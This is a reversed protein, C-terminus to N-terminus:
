LHTYSVPQRTDRRRAGHVGPGGQPRVADRVAAPRPHRRPPRALPRRRRPLLRRERHHRAASRTRGPPPRLQGDVAAVPHRGRRGDRQVLRPVGRDERRGGPTGHRHDLRGGEGLAPQRGHHRRRAQAGARSRSPRGGQTRLVQGAPPAPHRAPERTTLGETSPLGRSRLRGGGPPRNGLRHRPEDRNPVFTPGWRSGLPVRAPSSRPALPVRAPTSHSALCGRTRGRNTGAEDEAPAPATAAPCLFIPGTRPPSVSRGSPPNGGYGKTLSAAHM